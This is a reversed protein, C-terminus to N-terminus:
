FSNVAKNSLHGISITAPCRRGSIGSGSKRQGTTITAIPRQIEISKGTYSEKFQKKNGNNITQKSNINIGLDQPYIQKSRVVKFTSEETGYQVKGTNDIYLYNVNKLVTWNFGLEILKKQVLRSLKESESVDIKTNYFDEKKLSNNSTVLKLDAVNYNIHHKNAPDCNIRGNGQFWEAIEPKTRNAFTLKFRYGIAEKHRVWTRIHETDLVEVLDGEKFPLEEGQYHKIDLSKVSWMSKGQGWGGYFNNWKVAIDRPNLPYPNIVTGQTGEFIRGDILKLAVVIDGVKFEM